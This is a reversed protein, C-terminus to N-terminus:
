RDQFSRPAISAFTRLQKYNVWALGKLTRDEIDNLTWYLDRCDNECAEDEMKELRKERALGLQVAASSILFFPGAVFAAPALSAGPHSRFLLIGGATTAMAMAFLSLPLLASPWWGPEPPKQGFGALSPPIDGRLDDTPTSTKSKESVSGGKAATYFLQLVLLV